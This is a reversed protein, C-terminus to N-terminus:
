GITVSCLLLQTLRGAASTRNLLTGPGSTSVTWDTPKATLPDTVQTANLIIMKTVSDDNEVDSSPENPQEIDQNISGNNHPVSSNTIVPQPQLCQTSNVVSFAVHLLNWCIAFLVFTALGSFAVVKCKKKRLTIEIRKFFTPNKKYEESERARMYHDVIRNRKNKDEKLTILGLLTGVILGGFHVGLSTTYIGSAHQVVIM